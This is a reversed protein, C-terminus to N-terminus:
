LVIHINLPKGVQGDIIIGMLLLVKFFQSFVHGSIPHFSLMLLVVMKMLEISEILLMGLLCERSGSLHLFINGKGVM